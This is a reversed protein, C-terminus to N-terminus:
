SQPAGGAALQRLLAKIGQNCDHETPWTAYSEAVSVSHHDDNVVIFWRWRTGQDSIEVPRALFFARVPVKPKKAM